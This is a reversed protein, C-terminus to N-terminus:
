LRVSCTKFKNIYYDTDCALCNGAIDFNLCHLDRLHCNGDDLVAFGKICSDCNGNDAYFLCNPDNSQCIGKKAHFGSKCKICQLDKTQLCNPIGCIGDCDL